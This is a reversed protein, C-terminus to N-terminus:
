PPSSKADFVLKHKPDNLLRRRRYTLIISICFAIFLSGNIWYFFAGPTILKESLNRGSKPRYDLTLLLDEPSISKVPNVSSGPTTTAMTNEPTPVPIVPRESPAVEITIAPITSEVYKKVEPDFFSFSVEPLELTGTKEPIFVYDFRKTGELPQSEDSEFVSEPPYSRWNQAEPLKPGQIRDFNGKGSLKLSLM